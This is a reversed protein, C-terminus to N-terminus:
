DEGSEVDRWILEKVYTAKHEQEELKEILPKDHESNRNFDVSLRYLNAKKWDRLKEGKVM